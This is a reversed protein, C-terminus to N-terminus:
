PAPVYKQVTDAIVCTSDAPDESGYVDIVDDVALTGFEVEETESSTATETIQLIRTDITTKVCDYAAVPDTPELTIRGSPPTTAPDAPTTADIKREILSVEPATAGEELVILATRLPETVPDTSPDAFVGDVEGVTGPQIFGADLEENSGIAFIRTGSQLLADIAAAGGNPTFEFIDNGGPATAVTGAIREFTDLPGLEVVVSNLRLRSTRSSGSGTYYSELFGIATLPDGAVVGGLGSPLGDEGFVGTKADTAVDLCRKGDPTGNMECDGMSSPSAAPCLEFRTGELTRVEGFVRVLKTDDPAITVFVVPRFIWQGSRGAKVIHLSKTMDMDIEIVLTEGGVVQFEGRPNLDLKGNGPRKPRIWESEPVPVGDVCSVLALDSLTLRIKEYTGVPVGDAISFVDTFNRMGLIDVTEPGTFVNTPGNAGLLDISEITALIQCFQDTPADTLLVTVTGTTPAPPPQSVPPTASSSSSGGGCAALALLALAGLSGAIPRLISHSAPARMITEKTNECHTECITVGIVRVVLAYIDGLSSMRPFEPRYTFDGARYTV